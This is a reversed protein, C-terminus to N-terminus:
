KCQRTKARYSPFHIFDLKPGQIEISEVDDVNQGNGNLYWYYNCQKVLAPVINGVFKQGEEEKGLNQIREILQAPRV